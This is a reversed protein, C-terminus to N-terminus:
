RSGFFIVHFMFQNGMAKELHHSYEAVEGALSVVCGNM